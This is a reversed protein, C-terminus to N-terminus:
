KKTTTIYTQLLVGYAIPEHMDVTAPINPSRNFVYVGLDAGNDLNAYIRVGNPIIFPRIGAVISDVLSLQLIADDPIGEVELGFPIFATKNPLIRVSEAASFIILPNGKVQKPLKAQSIIKKFKM